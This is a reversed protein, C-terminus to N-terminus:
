QDGHSWCRKKWFSYKTYYEQFEPDPLSKWVRNIIYHVITTQFNYNQDHVCNHVQSSLNVLGASTGEPLPYTMEVAYEYAVAMFSTTTARCDFLCVPDIVTEINSEM